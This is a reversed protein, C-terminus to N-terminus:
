EGPLLDPAYKEAYMWIDAWEQHLL